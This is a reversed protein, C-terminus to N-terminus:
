GVCAPPSPRAGLGKAMKRALDASAGAEVHKAKAL